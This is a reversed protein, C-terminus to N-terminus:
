KKSCAVVLFGISSITLLGLLVYLGTLNTTNTQLFTPPKAFEINEKEANEKEANEKRITNKNNNNRQIIGNRTHVPIDLISPTSSLDQAMSNMSRNYLIEDRQRKENKQQQKKEEMNMSQLALDRITPPGQVGMLQPRDVPGYTELQPPNM